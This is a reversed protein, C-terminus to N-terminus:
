IASLVCVCLFAHYTTSICFLRERLFNIQVAYANQKMFLEMYVEPKDEKKHTQKKHQATM